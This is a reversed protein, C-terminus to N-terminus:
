IPLGVRRILQPVGAVFNQPLPIPLDVRQKSLNLEEGAARQTIKRNKAKRLAVLRDRDTQSMLLQGQNELERADVM